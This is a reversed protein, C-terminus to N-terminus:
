PARKHLISIRQRCSALANRQDDIRAPSGHRVWTLWWCNDDVVHTRAKPNAAIPWARENTSHWHWSCVSSTRMTRWRKPEIRRARSQVSARWMHRTITSSKANAFARPVCVVCPVAQLADVGCEVNHKTARGSSRSRFSQSSIILVSGHDCLHTHPTHTALV